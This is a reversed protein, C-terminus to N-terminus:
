HSDRCSLYPEFLSSVQRTAGPTALIISEMDLLSLRALYSQRPGVDIRGTARASV